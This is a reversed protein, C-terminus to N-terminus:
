FTAKKFYQFVHKAKEIDENKCFNNRLKWVKKSVVRECVCVCVCARARARAGIEVNTM